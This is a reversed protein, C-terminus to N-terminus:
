LLTSEQTPHSLEAARTADNLSANPEMWDRAKGAVSLQRRTDPSTLGFTIQMLPSGSPTLGESRILYGEVQDIVGLNEVSLGVVVFDRVQLGVCRWECQLSGEWARVWHPAFWRTMTISMGSSHLPPKGQM